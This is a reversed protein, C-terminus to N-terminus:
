IVKKLIFEYESRLYYRKYINKSQYVYVMEVNYDAFRKALQSYEIWPYKKIDERIEKVSILEPVGFVIQRPRNDIIGVCSADYYSRIPSNKPKLEEM